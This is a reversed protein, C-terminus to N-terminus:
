LLIIFDTGEPIPTEDIAHSNLHKQLCRTSYYRNFASKKKHTDICITNCIEAHTPGSRSWASSSKVIEWCSNCRNGPIAGIRKLPERFSTTRTRGPLASVVTSIGECRKTPIDRFEYNNLQELNEQSAWPAAPYINPERLGLSRPISDRRAPLSVAVIQIRWQM